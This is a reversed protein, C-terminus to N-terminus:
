RNNFDLSNHNQYKVQDKNMKKPKNSAYKLLQTVTVNSCFHTLTKSM